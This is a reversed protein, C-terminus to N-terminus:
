GICWARLNDFMAMKLLRIAKYESSIKVRCTVDEISKVETLDSIRKCM